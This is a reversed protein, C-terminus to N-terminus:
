KIIISNEGDKTWQPIKQENLELNGAVCDKVCKACHICKEEDIKLFKSNMIIEKVM